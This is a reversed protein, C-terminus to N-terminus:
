AGKGGVGTADAPLPRQELQVIRPTMFILLEQNNKADTRTKFLWGLIPIDKLAPVGAVTTNTSVKTIGGIVLTDGDDLLLETSAKKSAITPIGQSTYSQVDDKNIDIKLSIRHDLTVHPTVKLNLMVRKFQTTTTASGGSGTQPVYYGVEVGQEITAEKNDLTLIKPASVIKGEGKSEMANLQADIFLPTNGIRTFNLGLVGGTTASALNAAAGPYNVVGTYGYNGASADFSGNTAWGVGLDRSFDTSAEVIKAEIMVQPTVRDLRQVVERIQKIKSATDTVILQNTRDDVTISCDPRNPSIMGKVHQLMEAQAKAYNVPIYETVVPELEMVQARAKKEAEFLDQKAKEEQRLTELRAIRIIGHDRVMDLQNMKLVLDLVQDWPVPKDLALTVKGQVDKDIAFNEKSYDALLRFVNRIDTDFFDIGIKEGKYVKHVDDRYIDSRLNDAAAKPHEESPTVATEHHFEAETEVSKAAPPTEDSKGVFVPPPMVEQRPPLSSASFHIRIVNGHKEVTYPVAERLDIAVVSDSKIKPSQMPRIRDIASQFRTTILPLKRFDSIHTHRLRLQLKNVSVKEMRYEVPHTTGVIVTSKGGSDSSFDIRNVWADGPKGSSKIGSKAKQSNGAPYTRTLTAQTAATNDASAAQLSSEPLVTEHVATEDPVAAVAEARTDFTVKLSNGDRKVQYPVDRALEIEIKSTQIDGMKLTSIRRIVDADAPIAPTLSAVSTEPFYLVVSLPKKQKISTYSLSSNGTINVVVADADRYTQVGTIQRLTKQEQQSEAQESPKRSETACAVVMVVVSMLAMIRIFSIAQVQRKAMWIRVKQAKM